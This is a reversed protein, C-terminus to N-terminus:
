LAQISYSLLTPQKTVVKALDKVGIHDRFFALVQKHGNTTSRILMNTRNGTRCLKVIVKLLMHAGIAFDHFLRASRLLFPAVVESQLKPHQRFVTVVQQENAGLALLVRVNAEGCASLKSATSARVIKCMKLIVNKKVAKKPVNGWDEESGCGLLGGEAESGISEVRLTYPKKRRKIKLLGVGGKEREQLGVGGVTRSGEEDSERKEPDPSEGFERSLSSEQNGTSIWARLEARDCQWSPDFQPASVSSASGRSWACRKLVEDTTFEPLPFRSGNTYGDENIESDLTCVDTFRQASNPFAFVQSQSTQPRFQCSGSHIVGGVRHYLGFFIRRHM